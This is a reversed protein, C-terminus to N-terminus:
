DKRKYGKSEMCQNLDATFHPSKVNPGHQQETQERCETYDRETEAQTKGEQVWHVSSACGALLCAMALSCFPKPNM